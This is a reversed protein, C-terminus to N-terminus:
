AERTSVRDIDRARGNPFYRRCMPWTGVVSVAFRFSCGHRILVFELARDDLARFDTAHECILAALQEIGYDGGGRQDGTGVAPDLLALAIHNDVIEVSTPKHGCERMSLDHIGEFAVQPLDVLIAAGFRRDIAEFLEGATRRRTEYNVGAILDCNGVSVKVFPFDIEQLVDM